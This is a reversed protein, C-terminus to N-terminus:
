HMQQYDRCLLASKLIGGQIVKCGDSKVDIKELLSAKEYLALGNTSLCKILGSFKKSVLDLTVFTEENALPDGPGAVAAVKMASCKRTADSVRELAKQPLIIEDAVGSRDETSNLSRVCYCCQINCKPAVPLHVRGYHFHAKNNFCPHQEKIIEINNAAM